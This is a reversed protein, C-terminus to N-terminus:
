RRAEVAIEATMGRAEHGPITCILKLPGRPAVVELSATKGPAIPGSSVNVGQGQVSMNHETGGENRLQLVTKQARQISLKAPEVSFDRVTAQMTPTPSGCAALAAAGVAVLAARVFPSLRRSDLRM